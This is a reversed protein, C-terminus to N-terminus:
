VYLWMIKLCVYFCLEYSSFQLLPRIWMPDPTLPRPLTSWLYVGIPWFHSLQSLLFMVPWSMSSHLRHVRVMFFLSLSLATTQPFDQCYFDRSAEEVGKHSVVVNWELDRENKQKKGANEGWRQRREGAGWKAFPGLWQRRGLEKQMLGLRCGSLALLSNRLAARITCTTEQRFKYLLSTLRLPFCFSCCWLHCSWRSLLRQLLVTWDPLITLPLVCVNDTHVM